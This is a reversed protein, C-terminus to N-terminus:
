PELNITESLDTEASLEMDIVTKDIINIEATATTKYWFSIDISRRIEPKSGMVTDLNRIDSAISWTLGKEALWIQAPSQNPYALLAEAFDAAGAKYFQVSYTIRRRGKFNLTSKVPDVNERDVQSDIGSKIRIIEKVTAYPGNPAAHGDDGPIVNKDFDLGTALSVFERVTEDLYEQTPNVAM